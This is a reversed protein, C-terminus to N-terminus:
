DLTEFGNTLLNTARGPPSPTATPTPTAMVTPTPTAMATPTSSPMATAPTSTVTATPTAPPTIILQSGGSNCGAIWVVGLAMLLVVRWKM